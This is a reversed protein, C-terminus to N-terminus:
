NDKKDTASPDEKWYDDMEKDLHEAGVDNGWYKEMDANLQDESLKPRNRRNNGRFRRRGGGRKQEKGSQAKSLGQRLHQPLDNANIVIVKQQKDQPRRRQNQNGKPNRNRVMKIYTLGLFCTDLKPWGTIASEILVKNQYVSSYYPIFGSSM